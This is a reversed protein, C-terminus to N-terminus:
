QGAQRKGLKRAYVACGIGAALAGFGGLALPLANAGTHALTVTTPTASPTASHSSTPTIPKPTPTPTPCGPLVLVALNESACPSPITKSPTPTASPTESPPSSEETKTPTPCTPWNSIKANISQSYCPHPTHSSTPTGTPHVCQYHDQPECSHSYTPQGSPSGSAHAVASFGVLASAGLLVPIAKRIM